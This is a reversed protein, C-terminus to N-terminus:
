AVCGVFEGWVVWRCCFAVGFCYFVGMLWLCVVIVFLVGCMIVVFGGGCCVLVVCRWWLVGGCEVTM